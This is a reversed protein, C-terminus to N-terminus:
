EAALSSGCLQGLTARLPVCCGTPAEMEWLARMTVNSCPTLDGVEGSGGMTRIAVVYDQVAAMVAM